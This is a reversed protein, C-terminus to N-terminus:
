KTVNYNGALKNNAGGMGLLKRINVMSEAYTARANEYLDAAGPLPTGNPALKDMTDMAEKATAQYMTVYDKPNLTGKQSAAQAQIQLSRNTADIDALTKLVGFRDQRASKNSEQLAALGTQGAKGLDGGFSGTGGQMLSMGAQALAMWKDSKAEDKRSDLMDILQQQYDSYRGSNLGGSTSTKTKPVLNNSDFGEQAYLPIGTDTNATTKVVPATDTETDIAGLAPIEVINPDSYGAINIKSPDNAKKWLDSFYGGIDQAFEPIEGQNVQTPDQMIGVNSPTRQGYLADEQARFDSGATRRELESQMQAQMADANGINPSVFTPGAADKALAEQELLALGDTPGILRPDIANGFYGALAETASKNDSNAAMASISDFETGPANSARNAEMAAMAQNYAYLDRQEQDARSQPIQPATQPATQPAGERVDFVIPENPVPFNREDNIFQRDYGEVRRRSEEQAALESPSPPVTAPSGFNGAPYTNPDIPTVQRAPPPNRDVSTPDYPPTVVPPTVVTPETTEQGTPLYEQYYPAYPDEGRNGYVDPGGYQSDGTPISGLGQASGAAPQGTEPMVVDSETNIIRELKAAEEPTKPSYGLGQKIAIARLRDPIGGNQNIPVRNNGVIREITGDLYVDFPTGMLYVRRVSNDITGAEAMKVVGGSAMQAIGQPASPMGQPAQSMAGTNQAVNTQPALTRAMDAIGGQPVGAAAVAEQAVSQTPTKSAEQQMKQRRTIESLVMFQPAEGTPQQMMGVLQEQSFNKLKDQLEIMNMM